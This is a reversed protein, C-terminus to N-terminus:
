RYPPATSYLKARAPLRKTKAGNASVQTLIELDRLSFNQDLNHDAILM